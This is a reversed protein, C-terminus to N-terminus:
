DDEDNHEGHTQGSKGMQLTAGALPVELRRTTFDYNKVVAASWSGMMALLLLGVLLHSSPIGVGAPAMKNGSLMSFVVNERKVVTHVLVGLLHMGIVGLLSYSVAEHLDEFIKNGPILLGSIVTGLTLVLMAAIAYSAAPNHGPHHEARGSFTASVYKFAELPNYLFSKFRAYRSGAVGWLLRFLMLPLLLMGCLMHIDFARSQEPSALAFVFAATCAAVLLWHFLRTPLDWILQTKMPEPKM